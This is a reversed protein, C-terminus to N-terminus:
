CLQESVEFARDIWQEETFGCIRAFHGCIAIDRCGYNEQPIVIKSNSGFSTISISLLFVAGLIQFKKKM